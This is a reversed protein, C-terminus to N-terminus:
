PIDVMNWGSILKFGPEDPILVISPPGPACEDWFSAGVTSGGAPNPGIWFAVDDPTVVGDIFDADPLTISAAPTLDGLGVLNWGPITTGSAPIGVVSVCGSGDEVVSTGLLFPSTTMSGLPNLLEAVPDFDFVQIGNGSGIVRSGGLVGDGWFFIEVPVTQQVPTSFALPDTRTSTAVQTTVGARFVMSIDSPTTSWAIRPTIAGGTATVIVKETIVGSFAPSFMRVENGGATNGSAILNEGANYNLNGFEVLNPFPNDLLLSASCSADDTRWAQMGSSTLVVAIDVATAYTVALVSGGVSFENPGRWTQTGSDFCVVNINQGGLVATILGFGGSGGGPATVTLTATDPVVGSIHAGTIETVGPAGAFAVEQAMVAVNEDSSSWLIENTVDEFRPIGTVPDNILASARYVVSDGVTITTDPPRISISEPVLGEGIDFRFGQSSFSERFGGRIFDFGIRVVVFGAVAIDSESIQAMATSADIVTTPRGQGDWQITVSGDVLDPDQLDTGQIEVTLEFAPGGEAAASPSLSLIIAGFDKGDSAFFCGQLAILFIPLILRVHTRTM